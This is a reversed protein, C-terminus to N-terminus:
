KLDAVLYGVGFGVGIAAVAITVVVLVSSGTERFVPPKELCEKLAKKTRPYDLVLVNIKDVEPRTLCFGDKCICDSGSGIDECKPVTL